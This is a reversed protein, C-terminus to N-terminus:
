KGATMGTVKWQVSPAKAADVFRFRMLLPDTLAGPQLAEATGLSDKFDFVAGEKAKGNSANLVTPANEANRKKDDENEYKPM